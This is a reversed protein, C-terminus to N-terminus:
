ERGKQTGGHRLLERARAVGDLVEFWGDVDDCKEAFHVAEDLSVEEKGCDHCTIYSKIIEDDTLSEVLERKLHAINIQRNRLSQALAEKNM